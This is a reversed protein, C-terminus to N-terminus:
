GNDAGDEVIVIHLRRPGHAGLLLTQEIDGSRSPGTVFNVTRPPLGGRGSDPDAALERVADFVDEYSKVVRSAPLVVVHTEPVFNLTSPHAPGSYMALTGTEAVASPASTISVQDPEDPVGRRIELLSNEAWPAADLDTDPAMVVESPLNAGRLYDAVADPVDAMDSVRTTTAFVKQAMTEFLDVLGAHDTDTRAPVINRKHGAIRARLTEATAEDVPGDRGRSRRLSSLIQDRGNSSDDSM